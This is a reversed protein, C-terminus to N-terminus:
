DKADTVGYFGAIANVYRESMWAQGCVVESIMETQDFSGDWAQDSHAEILRAHEHGISTTNGRLQNADCTVQAGPCNELFTYAIKFVWPEEAVVGDRNEIGSNVL